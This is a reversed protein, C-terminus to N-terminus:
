GFIDNSIDSYWQVSDKFNTKRTASDEGTQSIFNSVVEISEKGPEYAAGVKVSNNTSILSWCTNNYSAPSAAADTLETRIAKVAVKAQSNASYASKPMASAVSADGLVYINPDAKSRM